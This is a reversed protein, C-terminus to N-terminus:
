IFGDIGIRKGSYYSLKRQVGSKQIIPLLDHIGM